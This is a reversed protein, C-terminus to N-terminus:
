AGAHLGSRHCVCDIHKCQRRGQLVMVADSSSHLRHYRLLRIKASSPSTRRWVRGAAAATRSGGRGRGHVQLAPAAALFTVNCARCLPLIWWSLLTSCFMDCLGLSMSGICAPGACLPACGFENARKKDVPYIWRQYLYVLFVACRLWTTIDALVPRSRCRYSLVCLTTHCASVSVWAGLDDRFVSLRHLTPMKIVFAFLDDIITNLFRCM